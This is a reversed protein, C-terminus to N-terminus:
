APIDIRGWGFSKCLYAGDGEVVVIDGVSLSRGRGYKAEREDQRSPNNTLDFVEAAASEGTHDTDIAPVTTYQGKALMDRATDQQTGMSTYFERMSNALMITAKAMQQEQQKNRHTYQLLIAGATL